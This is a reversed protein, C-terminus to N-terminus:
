SRKKQEESNLIGDKITCIIKIIETGQRVRFINKTDEKKRVESAGSKKYVWKM